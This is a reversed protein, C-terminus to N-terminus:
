ETDDLRYTIATIGCEFLDYPKLGNAKKMAVASCFVTYLKVGVWDKEWFLIELNAIRLKNKRFLLSHFLCRLNQM